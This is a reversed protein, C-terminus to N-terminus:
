KLYASLIKELYYLSQLLRSVSTNSWFQLSCYVTERILNIAQGEGQM